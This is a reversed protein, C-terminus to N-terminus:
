ANCRAVQLNQRSPFVGGSASEEVETSVGRDLM